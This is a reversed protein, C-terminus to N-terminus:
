DSKAFVSEIHDVSVGFLQLTIASLLNKDGHLHLTSHVHRLSSGSELFAAPSSSELEYFPGMQAGNVPGDNYSNVVDGSFPDEQIEWMSNVYNVPTGPLSFHVLTLLGMEADYSGALALARPPAVGIKSRYEGDAKFFILGPEVRLRDAPVVGFYADNVVPGLDAVAGERYPIIVTTAPSPRFMGLIWISLAGGQPTWTEAGTNRIANDSQFSVMRLATPIEVGFLAETERHDLVRLERRVQLSLETGSYNVLRIDRGFTARDASQDLLRFPETDLSAPTQWNDYDFEADPQFFISFQGGEPGMWFRDEGGYPNIHPTIEGAAIHRYNIWGYSTGQAGDATSTMVRGQYAPCLLIRARRHPDSLVIVSQYHALFASDYAFTGSEFQSGSRDCAMLVALLAPFPLWFYWKLSINM